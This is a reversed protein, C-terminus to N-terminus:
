SFFASAVAWHRHHVLIALTVLSHHHSMRHIQIEKIFFTLTKLIIYVSKFYNMNTLLGDVKPLHLPRLRNVMALRDCGTDFYNLFRWM